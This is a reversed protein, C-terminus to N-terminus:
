GEERLCNTGMQLKRSLVVQGLTFPPVAQHMSLLVLDLLRLSADDNASSIQNYLTKQYNMIWCLM